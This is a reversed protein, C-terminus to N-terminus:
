IIMQSNLHTNDLNQILIDTILDLLILQETTDLEKRGWPSYGVLNRQGHFEGPLFVPTPLGESKWPPSGGSGLILGPDGAKFAAEKGDSGGPFARKFM